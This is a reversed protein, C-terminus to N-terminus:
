STFERDRATRLSSRGARWDALLRDGLRDEVFVTADVGFAIDAELQPEEELLGGIVDHRVVQEHVADAEVHEDYFHVAAPGAGTRRMAEALRRSGPSSTIEVTAFHGVLAGRLSRHLGFLSMLNVTVLLEACAADLYRGYTPDLDLDRMLDAFLRAHVRDGRGGGYEDFEVAAMAAKARGWLRPLVWAHPDAEKLHYLSRQAAYERLHWLEGKDRLFHSVGTGDVPEVLLGALADDLRDHRRADARLAALFRRELAGRTRLLDPDWELDAPVGAFGRYHLEYCLYLALQFDDGYVPAAAVEEDHPLPGIGRLHNAVATSLPGRPAPLLPEKGTDEM